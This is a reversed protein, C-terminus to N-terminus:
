KLKMLENWRRKESSWDADPWRQVWADFKKELSQLHGDFAPGSTQRPRHFLSAKFSEFKELTGITSNSFYTSKFHEWVYEVAEESPHNLSRDYFRYDRLDDLLLEYSPYYETNPTIECLSHALEILRAKSRNNDIFGSRLHRVPSVTLLIRNDPNAGQWHSLARGLSSTMEEITLMRFDFEKEPLKHCNNVVKENRFWAWATGLSIITTRYKGLHKDALTLEHEIKSLSEKSTPASFSGHHDFSVWEHNFKELDVVDYKRGNQIANLQDAISLPNYTIGFPNNVVSFKANALKDVIHEAFCSGLSLISHDHQISIDSPVVPVETRFKM